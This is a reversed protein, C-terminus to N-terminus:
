PWMIGVRSMAFSKAERPTLAVMIVVGRFWATKESEITLAVVSSPRRIWITTRSKGATWAPKGSPQSRSSRAGSSATGFKWAAQAISWSGEPNIIRKLIHRRITLGNGNRIERMVDPQRPQLEGRDVRIIILIIQPYLGPRDSRKREAIFTSRFSPIFGGYIFVLAQFPEIGLSGIGNNIDTEPASHSAQSGILEALKGPPDFGGPQAEDPYDSLPPVLAPLILFPHRFPELLPSFLSPQDYSPPGRLHDDEVVPRDPSKHRVTPPVRSQFPHTSPHRKHRPGHTGFLKVVLLQHGM